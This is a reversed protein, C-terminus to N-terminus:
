WAITSRMEFRKHPGFNVGVSWCGFSMFRESVRLLKGCDNNETERLNENFHYFLLFRRFLDFPFLLLLVVITGIFKYFDLTEFMIFRIDTYNSCKSDFHTPAM